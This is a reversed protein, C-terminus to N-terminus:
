TNMKAGEKHINLGDSNFTFGTKTHVSSVGGELTREVEIQLNEPTIAMSVQETISNIVGNM